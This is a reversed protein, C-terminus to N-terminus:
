PSNTMLVMDARSAFFPKPEIISVARQSGTPDILLATTDHHDNSHFFIFPKGHLRSARIHPFRSWPASLHGIFRERAALSVLKQLISIQRGRAAMDHM